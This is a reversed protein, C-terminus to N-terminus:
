VGLSLRFTYLSHKFLIVSFRKKSPIIGLYRQYLLLAYHVFSFFITLNSKMFIFNEQKSSVISFIFIYVVFQSSINAFWMDLFPSIDLNYLSNKFSWLFVVAIKFISLVNSYISWWLFYISRLYLLLSINSM